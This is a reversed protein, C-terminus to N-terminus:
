EKNLVKDKVTTVSNRDAHELYYKEDEATEVLNKDEDIQALIKKYERIKKVIPELTALERTLKTFREVESIIAPDGIQVEIERFRDEVKELKELLYIM